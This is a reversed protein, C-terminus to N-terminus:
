DPPVATHTAQLAESPPPVVGAVGVAVTQAVGRAVHLRVVANCGLARAQTTIKSMLHHQAGQEGSDVTQVIAVAEFGSPIPDGELLIRVDQEVAVRPKGTVVQSQEAASCGAAGFGWVVTVLSIATRIIFVSPSACWGARASSEAGVSVAPPM